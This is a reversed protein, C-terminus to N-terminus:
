EVSLRLVALLLPIQLGLPSVPFPAVAVEVALLAGGFIKVGFAV